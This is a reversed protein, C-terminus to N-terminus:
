QLQEITIALDYGGSYGPQQTVMYSVPTNPQPSFIYVFEAPSDYSGIGYSFGSGDIDNWSFILQWTANINRGGATLYESLRYLGRKTPTFITTQPIPQTQRTLTVTQIVQWQPQTQWSTAAWLAIVIVLVLTAKRM